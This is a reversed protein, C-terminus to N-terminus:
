AELWSLGFRIALQGLHLRASGKQLILVDLQLHPLLVILLVLLMGGGLLLPSPIHGLELSIDVKFELVSKGAAQCIGIATVVTLKLLEAAARRDETAIPHLSFFIITIYSDPLM